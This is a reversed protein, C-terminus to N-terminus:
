MLRTSPLSTINDASKVRARSPSSYAMKAGDLKVEPFSYRTVMSNSALHVGFIESRTAFLLIRSRDLVSGLEDQWYGIVGNV